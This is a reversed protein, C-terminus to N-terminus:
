ERFLWIGNIREGVTYSFLQTCYRVKMKPTLSPRVHYETLKSLGRVGPRMKDMDYAQEIHDESFEDNDEM